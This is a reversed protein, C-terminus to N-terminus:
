ARRYLNLRDEPSSIQDVAEPCEMVESWVREFSTFDEFVAEQEPVLYLIDARGKVAQLRELLMRMVPARFPNYLYVLLPTEPLKFDTADGQMVRVACRQLGLANWRQLNKEAIQVLVANLEVGLVERFPLESAIMVARGKGCGVDVFAYEEIELTGPMESWRKLAARLRAPPVGHYATNYKDNKGGGALEGGSILGSTEVGLEEDFPHVVTHVPTRRSLIRKAMVRLTEWTGRQAVSWRVQNWVRQLGM